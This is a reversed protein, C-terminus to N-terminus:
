DHTLNGIVEEITSNKLTCYLRKNQFMKGEYNCSIRSPPAEKMYDKFDYWSTVYFYQKLKRQKDQKSEKILFKFALVIYRNGYASFMYGMTVLRELQEKPVNLSKTTGAKAEMAVFIMQMNNTMIIDPLNLTTGGLRRAYWDPKQNIKDVISKEFSYGRQM